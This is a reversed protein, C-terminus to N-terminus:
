LTCLAILVCRVHWSLQGPPSIPKCKLCGTYSTALFFKRECIKLEFTWQAKINKCTKGHVCHVNYLHKHIYITNAAMGMCNWNDDDWIQQSEYVDRLKTYAKALYQPCTTECLKHETNQRDSTMFFQSFDIFYILFHAGISLIFLRM